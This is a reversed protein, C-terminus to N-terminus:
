AQRGEQHEANLGSWGHQGLMDVDDPRQDPREHDRINKGHDDSAASWPDALECSSPSNRIGINQHERQEVTIMSTWCPQDPQIGLMLFAGLMIAMGSSGPVGFFLTPLLSGAEKACSGTEAGIVGAVEGSASVNPHKSSQVTHGYAMWAPADGESAPFSGIAAVAALVCCGAMQPPRGDMMGPFDACLHSARCPDASPSSGQLKAARRLRFTMPRGKVGRSMEPVAFMSLVAVIVPFGTWLWIPGFTFTPRGTLSELGIFACMLWCAVIM